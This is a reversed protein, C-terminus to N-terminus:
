TPNPCTAVFSRKRLGNTLDLMLHSYQLDLSLSTLIATAGWSQTSSIHPITRLTVIVAFDCSKHPRKNRKSRRRTRLNTSQSLIRNQRSTLPRRRPHTRTRCTTTSDRLLIRDGDAATRVGLVCCLCLVRNAPQSRDCSHRL